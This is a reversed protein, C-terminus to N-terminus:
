TINDQTWSSSLGLNQLLCPAGASEYPVLTFQTGSLTTPGAPLACHM